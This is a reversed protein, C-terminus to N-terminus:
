LERAVTNLAPSAVTILAGEDQAVRVAEALDRDGAILVGANAHSRRQFLFPGWLPGSPFGGFQPDLIMVTACGLLEDCRWPFTM